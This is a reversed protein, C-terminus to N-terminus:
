HRDEIVNTLSAPTAIGRRLNEDGPLVRSNRSPALVSPIPVWDRTGGLVRKHYQKAVVYRLCIQCVGGAPRPKARPTRRGFFVPMRKEAYQPPGSRLSNLAM